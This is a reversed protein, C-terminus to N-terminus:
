NSPFNLRWLSLVSSGPGRGLVVLGDPVGFHWGGRRRPQLGVFLEWFHFISLSANFRRMLYCLRQFVGLGGEGCM